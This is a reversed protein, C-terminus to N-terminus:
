KWLKFETTSVASAGAAIARSVEQETTILGGSIIPIDFEKKARSIIKPLLGPLIEVGNPKLSAILHISSEYSASDLMFVRLITLCGLSMARLAVAKKTTIIGDPNAKRILYETGIPDNAIGDVLDSHIICFKGSRRVADVKQEFDSASCKLLFVLSVDSDAARILEEDNRVAAIVQKGDLMQALSSM